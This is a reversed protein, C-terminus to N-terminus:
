KKNKTVFDYIKILNDVGFFDELKIMSSLYTWRPSKACCAGLETKSMRTVYIWKVSASNPVRLNCELFEKGFIDKIEIGYKGVESKYIGYDYAYDEVADCFEGFTFNIKQAETLLEKSDKM